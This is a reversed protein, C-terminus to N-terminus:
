AQQVQQVLDYTSVQIYRRWPMAWHLLMAAQMEIM